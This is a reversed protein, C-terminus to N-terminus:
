GRSAARRVAEALRLQDEWRFIKDNYKVFNNYNHTVTYPPDVFLFDGKSAADVMPEFDSCLIDVDSGVIESARRFDDSDLVDSTKTGIPVNFEGKLNVRYLGNFCTRNLYLM